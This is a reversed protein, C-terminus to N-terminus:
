SIQVSVAKDINGLGNINLYGIGYQELGSAIRLYNRTDSIKGQGDYYIDTKYGCGVAVHTSETYGNTIIDMSPSDSFSKVIGYGSLFLVVPQEAKVASKYKEFDFKGWSFINSTRYSYGQKTVYSRMGDQFGSYTTGLQGADTGMLDHLEVLLEAIETTSTKYRILSGLQIYTKYNPILNENFRDYYGLVIAGATNACSTNGEIKGGYNPLDYPISYTETEKEEYKITQIKEIVNGGGCYGFGKYAKEKVEEDSVRNNNLVDYFADDKYELYLGQAVYVPLGECEDFPSQKGYFLEEIEYFTKNEGELEAMLAYGEIDGVTFNYQRGGVNLEEDYLPSYTYTVEGQYNTDSLVFELFIQNAIDTEEAKTAVVRGVPGAIAGLLSIALVAGVINLKKM